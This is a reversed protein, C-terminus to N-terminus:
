DWHSPNDSYKMIGKKLYKENVVLCFSFLLYFYYYIILFNFFFVSTKKLYLLDFVIAVM